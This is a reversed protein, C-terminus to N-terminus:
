FDTIDVPFMSQLQVNMPMPVPLALPDQGRGWKKVASVGVKVM